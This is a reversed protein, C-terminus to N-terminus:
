AAIDRKAKAHTNSLRSFAIPGHVFKRYPLTRVARLRGRSARCLIIGMAPTARVLLLALGTLSTLLLMVIFAVDMGFRVEDLLEPARRFKAILLGVVLSIGGLAGLV